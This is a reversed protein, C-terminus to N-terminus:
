NLPGSHNARTPKPTGIKLVDTEYMIEERERERKECNIVAGGRPLM